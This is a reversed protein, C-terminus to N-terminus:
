PLYALGKANMQSIDPEVDEPSEMQIDEDGEDDIVIVERENHLALKKRKNKRKNKEDVFWNIPALDADKKLAFTKFMKEFETQCPGAPLASESPPSTRAAKGKGFFSAMISRSKIQADQAKKEKEAKAAKREQKEKEQFPESFPIVARVEPTSVKAVKDPDIAKKTRSSGSSSAVKTATTGSQWLYKIKLFCRM